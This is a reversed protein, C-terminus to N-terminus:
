NKRSKLISGLFLLLLLQVVPFGVYNVWPRYIIPLVIGICGFLFGILISTFIALSKNDSPIAGTISGILFLLGVSISSFIKISTELFITKDIFIIPPIDLPNVKRKTLELITQQYAEQLDSNTSIGDNALANLEKLLSIKKELNDYYSYGTFYEFGFLGILVFFIFLILFLWKPRIDELLESITKFIESLM